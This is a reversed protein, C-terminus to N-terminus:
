IHMYFSTVKYFPQTYLDLKNKKSLWRNQDLKNLIFDYEFM